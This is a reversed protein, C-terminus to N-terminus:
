RYHKSFPYQLNIFCTETTFFCFLVCYQCTFMHPDGSAGGPNGPPSGTPMDQPMEQPMDVPMDQPMDVPMDQPMEVPMDQPMEVPMEVPIEIPMEVPMEVPVDVPVEVPFEVPVEVPMEIPMEVPMEVPVEVPVEAPAECNTCQLSTECLADIGSQVPGTYSLATCLATTYRRAVFACAAAGVTAGACAAAATGYACATTGAAKAAFTCRGFATPSCCEDLMRPEYAELVTSFPSSASLQQEKVTENEAIEITVFTEETGGELVILQLHQIDEMALSVIVRLFSTKTGDSKVVFDFVVTDDDIERYDATLNGPTFPSTANDDCSTDNYDVLGPCLDFADPIKDCDGDDVCTTTQEEECGAFPDGEFGEQCECAEGNDNDTSCFANAGCNTKANPFCTCKSGDVQYDPVCAVHQCLKDRCLDECRGEIEGAVRKLIARFFGVSVTEYSNEEGGSSSLECFERRFRSLFLGGQLKTLYAYLVDLLHSFLRPNDAKSTSFELEEQLWPLLLFVCM